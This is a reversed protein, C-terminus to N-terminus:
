NEKGGKGVAFPLFRNLLMSIPALLLAAILCDSAWNEFPLAFHIADFVLTHFAFYALSNQGIFCLWKMPPLTRFFSVCMLIGAFAGIYFLPFLGFRDTYIDTKFGPFWQIYLCGIMLTVAFYGAFLYKATLKDFLEKCFARGLYGAGYFGVAICAADLSWPVIKGILMVYVYAFAGFAVSVAVIRWMKKMLRLIWWFLLETVFLCIVFWMGTEWLGGRLQILVGPIVYLLNKWTEPALVVHILRCITGLFIAPILLSRCRSVLFRQFDRHKEPRFLYGSIFFFLPIHFLYLWQRLHEPATSHGIMVLIAAFGRAMDIWAIRGSDSNIAGVARQSANEM